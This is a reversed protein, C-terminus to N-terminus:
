ATVNAGAAITMKKTVASIKTEFITEYVQGRYLFMKPESKTKENVAAEDIAQKAAKLDATDHGSMFDSLHRNASVVNNNQAFLQLSATALAIVLFSKKM